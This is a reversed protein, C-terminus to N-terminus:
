VQDAQYFRKEKPQYWEELSSPMRANMGLLQRTGEDASALYEEGVMRPYDVQPKFFPRTFTLTVCRRIKTTRNSGAAHWINADFLAISGRTGLLRDAFQQFIEDSPREPSQHSATLVYTAGNDTTFDDLMALMTIMMPFGPTYMRVDRHPVKFYANSEQHNAVGGYSNLIARGGLYAEIEDILYRRGLLEDLSDGTGLVHHAVGSPDPPLGNSRQVARSRDIARDLDPGLRDLLAPEIVDPFLVWGRTRMLYLYDAANM